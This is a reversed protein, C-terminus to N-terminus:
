RFTTGACKRPPIVIQPKYTARGEDDHRLGGYSHRRDGSSAFVRRLLKPSSFSLPRHCLAPSGRPRPREIHKVLRERALFQRLRSFFVALLRDIIPMLPGGRKYKWIALQDDAEPIRLTHLGQQCRCLFPIGFFGRM